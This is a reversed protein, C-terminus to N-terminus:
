SIYRFVLSEYNNQKQEGLNENDTPSTLFVILIIMYFTQTRLVNKM